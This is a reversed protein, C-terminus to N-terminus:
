LVATLFRYKDRQLIHKQKGLYKNYINVKMVPDPRQVTFLM